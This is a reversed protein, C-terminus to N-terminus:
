RTDRTQGVVIEDILPAPWCIGLQADFSDSSGLRGSYVGVLRTVPGDNFRVASSELEYSSEQRLIIPAGSMGPRSTTDILIHKQPGILLKPESAISGRKWVPFLLLAPAFPPTLPLSPGLPFGLVFVDAGVRLRLPKTPMLNIAHTDVDNVLSSLIPLSVVDVSKGHEPHIFWLPQGEDNLLPLHIIIKENLKGRAFLFVTVSNPEGANPSLHKDTHPNRGSFNHWNTILFYSGNAHWIFGSASSLVKGNFTLRLPVVATSFQDIITM